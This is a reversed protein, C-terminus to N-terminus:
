RRSGVRDALYAVCGDISKLGTYDSEPVEVGTRESLAVVFDLYDMSDLELQDALPAAADLLTPDAEPAVGTLSDIVIARIEGETM